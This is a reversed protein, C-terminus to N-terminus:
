FLVPPDLSQNLSILAQLVKLLVSQQQNGCLLQAPDWFFARIWSARISLFAAITRQGLTVLCAVGDAAVSRHTKKLM